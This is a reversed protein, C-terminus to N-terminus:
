QSKRSMVGKRNILTKSPSEGFRARYAVSFRGFHTFGHRLAMRSVSSESPHTSVLDRHAANLRVTKLYETITLDFYERFCRQLSRASVGMALCLGETTVTECYYEEIYEQVQKAIYIRKRNAIISEAGWSGMSEILWTVTATIVNSLHEPYPESEPYAVLEVLSNRLACLQTTDGRIVAPQEFSVSKQNPFLTETMEIFRAEQIAIAESGSLASTVIDLSSREDFMILSSNGVEEGCSLFKGNASRPFLLGITGAPPELCISLATNYRDAFLDAQATSRMALSARFPGKGLQRTHQEAGSQRLTEECDEASTFLISQQLPLDSAFDEYNV